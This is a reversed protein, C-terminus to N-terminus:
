QYITQIFFQFFFEYIEKLLICLNNYIDVYFIWLHIM